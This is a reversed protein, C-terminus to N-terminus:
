PSKRLGGYSYHSVPECVPNNTLLSLDQNEISLSGAQRTRQVPVTVTEGAQTVLLPYFHERASPGCLDIPYDGCPEGLALGVGYDSLDPWFVGDSWEVTFLLLESGRALSVAQRRHVGQGDNVSEGITVRLELEDGVAFPVESLGDAWMTVFYQWERGGGDRLVIETQAPEGRCPSDDAPGLYRNFAIVTVASSDTAVNNAGVCASLLGATSIDGGSGLVCEPYGSTGATGGTGGTGASPEGTGGTPAGGGATGSTGGPPNGGNSGGHGTGGIVGAAGGAQDGAAGSEGAGPNGNSGGGSGGRGASPGAGGTKLGGTGSGGIRSGGSGGTRGDVVPTTGGSGSDGGAGALTGPGTGVMHDIGNCASLWGSM